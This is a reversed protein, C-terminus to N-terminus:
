PLTVFLPVVFFIIKLLVCRHGGSCQYYMFILGSTSVGIVSVARIGLAAEKKV